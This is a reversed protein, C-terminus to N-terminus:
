SSMLGVHRWDMGIRCGLCILRSGGSDMGPHIGLAGDTSIFGFAEATGAFCGVVARAIALNGVSSDVLKQAVNELVELITRRRVAAASNEEL